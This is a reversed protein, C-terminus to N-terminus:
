AEDIIFCFELTEFVRILIMPLLTEFMKVYRAIEGGVTKTNIVAKYYNFTNGRAAWDVVVM